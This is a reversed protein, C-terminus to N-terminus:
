KKDLDKRNDSSWPPLTDRWRIAPKIFLKIMPGLVKYFPHNIIKTFNPEYMSLKRAMKELHHRVAHEGGHRMIVIALDVTMWHEFAMTKAGNHGLATSLLEQVSMFKCGKKAMRLWLDLDFAIHLEENLPGAKEWADRRFLCSPQMFNGGSMWNYLSEMDIEAPPNKYYGVKGTPYVIRGAGFFVSAEPNEAATESGQPLEVFLVRLV